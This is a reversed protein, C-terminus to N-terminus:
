VTQREQERLQTDEMEPILGYIPNSTILRKEEEMMKKNEKKKYRKCGYVALGILVALCTTAGVTIGATEGESLSGGALKRNHYSETPRGTKWLKSQSDKVWTQDGNGNVVLVTDTTTLSATPKRTFPPLRAQPLPGETFLGAKVCYEVQCGDTIVALHQSFGAPCRKSYPDNETGNHSGVLPNGAQCSFFGGFPVAYRQGTEDRSVCIKLQDFLKLQFFSSPCSQANTMPNSTKAGFLGGFLYGTNESVHGKAACWYASFQVRSATFVDKCVSKCFIKWVLCDKQCDLHSFGETWQQSNLRVPAYGVPCSFAGTLPNRHELGQCLVAADPGELQACEQYTGGFTFNKATGECTGDDTNAHFNFNPSAPITCGPYTNFTYYRSIASKVIWSLRKVVPGPLEPLHNPTIFFQLPLGSRDTAVLQNTISEQWNKLTIGPYFPLGGISEVRSRTRNTQYQKTFFDDTSAAVSSNFDVIDRFSVGAAATISSRMSWSDKLFTSKIQDEQVLSAGADVSTIVHTGYNLVLIEALYDAMRTQNRELHSAIAIVQQRFGEDLMASPDFKVTYVLNRVQVRTTVAQDRVQHTKMRRFDSSFKGSIFSSSLEANISASTASQYDMWSEIIESNFELSSQKLAITFVEDPIIYAGDETTRCLSYNLNIVRGMDLNRLNDWGGGPLVELAPLKLTQKCEQFGLPFPGRIDLEQAWIAWVM